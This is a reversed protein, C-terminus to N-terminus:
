HDATFAARDFTQSPGAIWRASVAHWRHCIITLNSPTIVLCQFTNTRTQPGRLRRNSLTGSGILLVPRRLNPFHRQADEVSPYHTHGHLIAHAGAEAWRELLAAADPFAGPRHHGPLDYFHQHTVLIRWPTTMGRLWQLSEQLAAERVCGQQHRYPTVTNLGLVAADTLVIDRCRAQGFDNEYNRFPALLRLPLNYLPIDHNGPIVLLPRNLRALLRYAAQFQHRRARLTLDGAVVVADPALEEVAAVFAEACEPMFGRGVHIDSCHVITTTM